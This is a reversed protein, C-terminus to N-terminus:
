DNDKEAGNDQESVKDQGNGSRIETHRVEGGSTGVQKALVCTGLSAVLILSYLIAPVKSRKYYFICLL